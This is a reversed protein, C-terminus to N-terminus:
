ILRATEIVKAPDFFEEVPDPNWLSRLFDVSESGCIAVAKGPGLVPRGDPVDSAVAQWAAVERWFATFLTHTWRPAVVLRFPGDWAVIRNELLVQIDSFDDNLMYSSFNALTFAVLTDGSSDRRCWDEYKALISREAVDLLQENSISRVKRRLQRYLSVVKKHQRQDRPEFVHELKELTLDELRKVAGRYGPITMTSKGLVRLADQIYGILVGYSPRSSDHLGSILPHEPTSFVTV